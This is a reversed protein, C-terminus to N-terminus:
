RWSPPEEVQIQGLLSGCQVDTFSQLGDAFEFAQRLTFEGLARADGVSMEIISFFLTLGDM